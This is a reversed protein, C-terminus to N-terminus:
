IMKNWIAIALLILSVSSLDFPPVLAIVFAMIAITERLTSRNM